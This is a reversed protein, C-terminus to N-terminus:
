RDFSSVGPCDVSELFFSTLRSPEGCAALLDMTTTLEIDRSILTAPSDADVMPSDPTRLHRDELARALRATVDVISSDPHLFPDEPTLEHGAPPSAIIGHPQSAGSPCIELQSPSQTESPRSSPRTDALGEQSRSSRTNEPPQQVRRPQYVCHRELRTCNHCTPRGEDCKVKRSRCTLCGSRVRGRYSRQQM